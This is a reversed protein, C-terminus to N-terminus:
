GEKEELESVSGTISEFFYQPLLLEDLCPHCNSINDYFYFCM